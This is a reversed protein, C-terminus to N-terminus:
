GEWEAWHPRLFAAVSSQRKEQALKKRLNSQMERLKKVLIEDGGERQLMHKVLVVAKLKDGTGPGALDSETNKVNQSSTAAGSGGKSEKKGKEAERKGESMVEDYAMQVCEEEGFEGAGVGQEGEPEIFKEMNVRSGKGLVLEKVGERVGEVLKEEAGWIAGLTDKGGLELGSRRWSALILGGPLREWIDKITTIGVDMGVRFQEEKVEDVDLMDLAREVQAKRYRVKMGRVVGRAMPMAEDACHRVEVNPVEPLIGGHGMWGDVILLVKRREGGSRKVWEGFRVLWGHWMEVTMRGPGNGEYVVGEVGAGERKGVVMLPCKESGDVNGCVVYVVMRRGRGGKVAEELGVDWCHGFEDACFVDRWEYKEIRARLAEASEVQIGCSSFSKGVRGRLGRREWFRQLWGNSFKMEVRKGDPVLSNLRGLMREGMERVKEGSM